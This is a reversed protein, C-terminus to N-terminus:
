FCFVFYKAWNSGGFDYGMGWATETGSYLPNCVLHYNIITVQAVTIQVPVSVDVPNLIIAVVGGCDPKFGEGTTLAEQVIYEVRAPSYWGVGATNHEDELLTWIALQIDGYTFTGMGGPATKGPFGQNLVWNVNDLNEPFVVLELDYVVPDYSSYVQVDYQTYPYIYHDADICWGKYTGDLFGGDSVTTMFYSEPAPYDVVIKATQPLMGALGALNYGSYGTVMGTVAHALIYSAVPIDEYTFATVAPSHITSYIFQGPKPNGSNQPVTELTSTVSLHTEVLCFGPFTIYSVDFTLGDASPIVRVQGAETNKGAYLPTVLEGGCNQIVMSSLDRDNDRFLNKESDKKDCSCVLLGTVLFLSFVKLLNKKM